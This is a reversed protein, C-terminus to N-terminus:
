NLHEVSNKIDLRNLISKLANKSQEIFLERRTYVEVRNAKITIILGTKTTM